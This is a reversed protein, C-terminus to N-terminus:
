PKEIAEIIKLLNTKLNEGFRNVVPKDKSRFIVSIAYKQTPMILDPEITIDLWEEQNPIKGKTVFRLTSMSLDQGLINGVESILRNRKFVKSISESPNNASEIKIEALVEYFRSGEELNVKFENLFLTRLEDFANIALEPSDASAGLIGRDSNVDLIIGSKQAFNGTFGVRARAGAAPPTQSGPPAQYGIKRVAELLDRGDVPFFLYNLKTSIRFRLIKFKENIIESM